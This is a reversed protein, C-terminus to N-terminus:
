SVKSDILASTFIFRLKCFRGGYGGRPNRAPPRYGLGPGGFAWYGSGGYNQRPPAGYGYASAAPYQYEYNPANMSYQSQQSSQATSMHTSPVPNPSDTGYRVPGQQRMYAPPTYVQPETHQNNQGYYQM